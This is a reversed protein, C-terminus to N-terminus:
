SGPTPNQLILTTPEAPRGNKDKWEIRGNTPRALMVGAAVSLSGFKYNATLVLYDGADALVGQDLLSKRLAVIAPPTGPAEHKPSESGGLVLFGDAVEYGYAWLGVRSLRLLPGHWGSKPVGYPLEKVSDLRISSGTFKFTMELSPRNPCCRAAHRSYGSLDEIILEGKLKVGNYGNDAYGRSNLVEARERTPDLTTIKDNLSALVCWSTVTGAGSHYSIVVVGEKGNPSRLKEVSTNDNGKMQRETEEFAVVWGSVSSHKLIRVGATEYVKDLKDPITYVLVVEAVGDHEFDVSLQQKVTAAPPLDALVSPPNQQAVALQSVCGFVLVHTWPVRFAM